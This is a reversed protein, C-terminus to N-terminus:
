HSQHHYHSVQFHNKRHHHHHHHQSLEIFCYYSLQVGTRGAGGKEVAASLYISIFLLSLHFKCEFPFINESEPKSTNNISKIIIRQGPPYELGHIKDRCYSFFIPSEIFLIELLLLLNNGRMNRRMLVIIPLQPM